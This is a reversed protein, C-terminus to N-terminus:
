VLSLLDFVPGERCLRRYGDRTGVTCLDCAGTGCPLLGPAILAQAFGRHLRLLRRRLLTLVEALYSEPVGLYLQDAWPLLREVTPWLADGRTRTDGALAYEAEPPLLTGPMSSGDTERQGVFSVEVDREVLTRALMLLPGVGSGAGVLLARRTRGDVTFPRGIPGLVNLTTERPWRLPDGADSSDARCLVGIVRGGPLLTCPLLARALIPDRGESPRALVMQGPLIEGISPLELSVSHFDAWIPERGVITGTSIRM